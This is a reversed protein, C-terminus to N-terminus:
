AGYFFDHGKLVHELSDLRALSARPLLSIIMGVLSDIVLMAGVYSNAFTISSVRAVLAMHAVHAIPSLHSDTVAITAAGQKRAYRLGEVTWKAYRPFSIAVVVDGRSVSLLAEFLTPGGETHVRVNPLILGLYFALLQASGASARLGVICKTQAGAIRKAARRLVRHDLLTHTERINILATEAIRDVIAKSSSPVGGATQMREKPPLNRRLLVQLDAQFEPFGRYGLRKVFRIVSSESTRSHRALQAATLFVADDVHTLLFRALGKHSPPLDELKAQLMEMVNAGSSGDSSVPTV